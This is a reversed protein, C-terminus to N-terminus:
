FVSRVMVGVANGTQGSIGGVNFQKAFNIGAYTSNGVSVSYGVILDTQRKGSALNVRETSTIPTASVNDEEGSYTYGTIATVDAYGKRIAVPGHLAVSLQDQTKGGFFIDKKAL